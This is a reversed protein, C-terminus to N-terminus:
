KDHRLNYRPIRHLTVIILSLLLPALEEQKQTQLVTKM